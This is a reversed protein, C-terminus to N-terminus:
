FNRLMTLWTIQSLFVLDIGCFLVPLLFAFYLCTLFSSSCFGMVLCVLEFARLFALSNPNLQSPVLKLHGFVGMALESFPLLLGLEKFAYEYM